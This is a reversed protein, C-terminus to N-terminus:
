PWSHGASVVFEIPRDFGKALTQRFIQSALWRMKVRIKVVQSVAILALTPPAHGAKLM